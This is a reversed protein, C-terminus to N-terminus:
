WYLNKRNKEEAAAKHIMMGLGMGFLGTAMLTSQDMKCYVKKQKARQKLVKPAKTKIYIVRRKRPRYYNREYRSLRRSAGGDVYYSNKRRRSKSSAIALIIALVPILAIVGLIVLDTYSCSALFSSVKAVIPMVMKKVADVAIVEFM